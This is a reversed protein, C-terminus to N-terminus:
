TNKIKAIHGNEGDEDEGFSDEGDAPKQSSFRKEAYSEM